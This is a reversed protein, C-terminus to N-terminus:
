IRGTTKNLWIDYEVFHREVFQRPDWKLAAKIYIENRAFFKM